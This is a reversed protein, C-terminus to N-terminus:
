KPGVRIGGCFTTIAGRKYCTPGLELNITKGEKFIQTGVGVFTEVTTKIACKGLAVTCGGVAFDDVIATCEPDVTCDDTTVLTDSVATLTAGECGANLGALSASIKVDTKSTTAGYKGAGKSGFQCVADQPAAPCAPLQVPPNTLQNETGNCPTYATVIEGKIGKAKAPVVVVASAMSATVAVGLLGIVIRRM